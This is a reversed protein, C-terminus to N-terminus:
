KVGLYRNRVAQLENWHDELDTITPRIGLSPLPQSHGDIYRCADEFVRTVTKIAEPLIDVKIKPLKTMSVNPQYRQTVGELLEMETFVECWTRILSYGTQVLASQEDSTESSRANQITSNIRKKIKSISDWRPHSGRVVVGKGGEDSIQFYSCTRNTREIIQLLTVAFFIDHTFVIVQNTESLSVIREAVERTRRHDLSSVPDDFIVPATVESLRAEALFDAMALVKQEGESFVESPSHNGPLKRQRKVYGQRGVYNVAVEPARLAKCEEKFLADFNKNILQENAQKSVETLSRLLSSIQKSYEKLRKSRKSKNVYEEIQFWSRNLEAAAEIEILKQTEKELAAVINKNQNQLEDLQQTNEELWDQLQTKCTAANRVLERKFDKSESFMSAADEVIEISRNLGTYFSPKEEADIYEEILSKAETLQISVIPDTLTQLQMKHNTIDSAIKSELFEAYKEILSRAASNLPQRCYPCHETDHISQAILYKQYADGAQIFSTWTDDPDVTLNEEKFLANRLLSYDEELQMLTQREREYIPVDLATVMNVAQYAQDLARSHRQLERIKISITSADLETVKRRQEEIHKNINEDAVSMLKLEDLDTAEGLSIIQPYISSTKNFRSAIDGSFDSQIEAARKIATQVAKIGTMIYNFFALVEPTYVYELDEDIHLKVARSDFIAMRTFPSVGKEGQWKHVQEENEGLKYRITASAKVPQPQEINGLINKDATRSEALTKFIRSYGTKGTGNEGFLITLHTGPEITSGTIIANVGVVDSISTIILPIDEKINDDSKNLLKEEPLTREEFSNEQLFFTYADKVVTDSLPAKTSIVKRVIYRVWEPKTTAWDILLNRPKLHPIAPNDVNPEM